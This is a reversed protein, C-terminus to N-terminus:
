CCISLLCLQIAIISRIAIFLHHLATYNALIVPVQAMLPGTLCSVRLLHVTLSVICLMQQINHKKANGQLRSLIRAAIVIAASLFLLSLNAGITSPNSFWSAWCSWTFASTCVCACVCVCVCVCACACLCACEYVSM